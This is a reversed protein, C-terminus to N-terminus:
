RMGGGAPQPGRAMEEPTVPTIGPPPKPVNVVPDSPNSKMQIFWYGVGIVAVVVLAVLLGKNVTQGKAM